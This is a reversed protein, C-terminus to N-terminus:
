SCSFAEKVNGAAYADVISQITTYTGAVTMFLGGVVIICHLMCIVMTKKSSFYRGQHMYLGMSAPIILGTPSCCTSAIFGLIYNFFPIAEALLFSLVTLGITSSLWTVWHKFTNGQLHESNRLIRVLLFKAAVHVWLTSTMMFGPISVGYAVKELTGGASALSPSAIYQGCYMYVVMGFSMYCAVLLGQSVFLAKPFRKPVKMEAIVPMFTSMSCFGSFLNLAAVLGAVFGPHGVAVVGLDYPGTPPAGAPRDVVTVGIVVIFVATFISAFGIWTLIALKGLTRISSLLGTAIAAVLTWVISCGKGNALVKLGQSLGIFSSGTALVWTLLFLFSTVERAIPGGMLMAGDVVNHVGRYRMRFQYMVYSYYMSLASWLTLLVLGPGYGVVGLAAPISLVGTAFCLKILVVVTRVLGLARFPTTGADAKFVEGDDELVEGNVPTGAESTAQCEVGLTMKEGIVVQDSDAKSDSM